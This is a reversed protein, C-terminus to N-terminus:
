LPDSLRVVRQWDWIYCLCKRPFLCQVPFTNVVVFAIIRIFMKYIIYFTKPEHITALLYMEPLTADSHVFLDEQKIFIHHCFLTTTLHWHCFYMIVDISSIHLYTCWCTAHLNGFIITPKSSTSFVHLFHPLRYFLIWSQRDEIDCTHINRHNQVDLISYIFISFM